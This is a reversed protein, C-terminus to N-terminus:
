ILCTEEAIYRKRNEDLKFVKPFWVDQLVHFQVSPDKLDKIEYVLSESLNAEHSNNNYSYMHFGFPPENDQGKKGCQNKELWPLLCAGYPFSPDPGITLDGFTAHCSLTWDGPHDYIRRQRIGVPTVPFEESDTVARVWEKDITMVVNFFECDTFPDEWRSIREYIRGTIDNHCIVDSELSVYIATPFNAKIIEYAKAKSKAHTKNKKMVTGVGPGHDKEIVQDPWPDIHDVSLVMLNNPNKDEIFKNIYRFTNDTSGDDFVIEKHFNKVAQELCAYITLENNFTNIGCILPVQTCLEKWNDIVQQRTLNM